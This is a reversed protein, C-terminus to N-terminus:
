LIRKQVIRIFFQPGKEKKGSFRIIKMFTPFLAGAAVLVANVLMELSLEPKPALRM